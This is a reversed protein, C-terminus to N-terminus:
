QALEKALFVRDKAHISLAYKAKVAVVRLAFARREADGAPHWRAANQPGKDENIAYTTVVLNLPDNAFMLREIPSWAWAGTAWAEWLSVVHDVVVPDREERGRVYSLEAGSYADTARGSAVNSHADLLVDTLREALVDDRTARGNQDVDSWEEGFYARDYQDAASYYPGPFHPLSELMALAARADPLDAVLHSDRPPLIHRGSLLHHIRLLLRPPRRLAGVRPPHTASLSRRRASSPLGGLVSMVEVSQQTVSLADAHTSHTALDGSDHDVITM